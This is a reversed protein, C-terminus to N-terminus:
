IVGFEQLGAESGMPLNNRNGDVLAISDVDEERLGSPRPCKPAQLGPHTSMKQIVM